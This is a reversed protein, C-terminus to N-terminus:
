GQERTSGSESTGAPFLPVGTGTFTWANRLLVDYIPSGSNNIRLSDFVAPNANQIRGTAISNLTALLGTFNLKIAFVEPEGTPLGGSEILVIPTGWLTLNDGFARPNYEEDYRSVHGYAFPSLAEYLVATVQKTLQGSPRAQQPTPSGPVAATGAPLDAAVALLAITAVRGTNGVTTLANQNHLNFGLFPQFRDRVSKLVRGEPTQLMRADRNIDIGQANRRQTREAGDPNLMPVCILTLKQLIESVWKEQRHKGFFQFLDLLANTGTPEDGHMQSWILIRGPGSGLRLQFIERGEVSKGAVELSILDPFNKQVAELRRKLEAHKLSYPDAPSVHETEWISALQRVDVEFLDSAGPTGIAAALGGALLLGLKFILLDMHDGADTIEIEPKQAIM